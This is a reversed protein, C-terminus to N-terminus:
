LLTPLIPLKLLEKVEVNPFSSRLFISYFYGVRRLATVACHMVKCYEVTRRNNLEFTTCVLKNVTVM